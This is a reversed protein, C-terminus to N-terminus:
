AALGEPRHLAERLRKRGRHARIKVNAVSIGLREAVEPESAHIRELLVDRYTSPLAALARRVADRDEAEAMLIEPTKPADMEVPQAGLPLDDFAITRSRRQKRLHGIATTVAIRHLWTRYRAQGRFSDRFRYALVLADQTADEADNNSRLVRLVVSYVFRRDAPGFTVIQSENM